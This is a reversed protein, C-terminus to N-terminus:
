RLLLMSGLPDLWCQYCGIDVTPVGTGKEDRLRGYGEGRIDNAGGMWDQVLGKGRAPSSHKLAYQDATGDMVFRPNANTVTGIETGAQFSPRRTGILCNVLTLAPAQSETFYIDNTASVKGTSATIKRNNLFICNEASGFYSDAAKLDAYFNSTYGNDVITCNVLSQGSTSKTRFLTNIVNGAILCNTAGVHNEFLYSGCQFCGSTYVNAGEAICIGNTYGTVYCGDLETSTILGAIRSNRVLNVSRLVYSGWNNEFTCRLASGGNLGCPGGHVYNDRVVCDILTSGYAAAQRTSTVCPLTANGAILCNSVTGSSIGAGFCRGDKTDNANALRNFVIKCDGVQSAGAYIGGGQLSTVSGDTCNAFNNSIICNQVTSKYAAIGGGNGLSENCYVVANSVIIGTDAYIGGGGGSSINHHVLARECFFTNDAGGGRGGAVNYAIEGGHVYCAKTRDSCGVGGGAGAARNSVITCDFLFAPVGAVGGGFGTEARNGVFVCNTCTKNVDTNYYGGGSAHATNDVFLCGACVANYAGGGVDTAVNNTMVCGFCPGHSIGGGYKGTCGTFVCDRYTGYYAGGGHDSSSCCTIVVNSVQLNANYSRIGGGDVTAVGNSVTLNRIKGQYGYWIAKTGDGYVVVDRPNDTAGRITIYDHAIHTDPHKETGDTNWYVASCKSVDYQGPSLIITGSRARNCIELKNTFDDVDGSAIEYTAASVPLAFGYAAACAAFAVVRLVKM